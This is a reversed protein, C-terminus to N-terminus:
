TGTALANIEDSTLIRDYIRVDDIRGDLNYSNSGCRGIELRETAVYGSYNDTRHGLSGNVYIRVTSGDWSGLIHNWEDEADIYDTAYNYWWDDVFFSIENDDEFFFGWGSTWQSGNTACLIGDWDDPEDDSYMWFSITIPEPNLDSDDPCRLYDNSGDFDRSRTSNVPAGSIDPPVSTSDSAGSRDDCYFGEVSDTASNSSEDMDWYAIYDTPENSLSITCSGTCGPGGDCEEGASINVVGDGCSVATCDSDCTATEGGTGAGDGDCAEGATANVYGDGCVANTCDMDCSATDVGGGDCQEGRTVNVDGDGCSALSCNLDCTMSEGETDCEEPNGTDPVIYSTNTYGDGCSPYTCSENCTASDGGDDCSEGIEVSANGCTAPAYEDCESIYPVEAWSEVVTNPLVTDLTVVQRRKTFNGYRAEVCITRDTNWYGTIPRITCQGFTTSGSGVGVSIIENGQYELNNRLRTIAEEMCSQTFEYAQTSIQLSYANREISLGLLLIAIAVASTVIGVSLVTILLVYGPKM